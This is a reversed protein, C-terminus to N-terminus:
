GGLDMNVLLPDLLGSINGRVGGQRFRRGVAKGLVMAMQQDVLVTGTSYREFVAM